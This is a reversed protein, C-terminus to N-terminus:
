FPCLLWGDAPPPAAQCRRVQLQRLVEPLAYDAVQQPFLTQRAYGPKVHV